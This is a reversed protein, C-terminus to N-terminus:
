YPTRGSQGGPRAADIFKGLHDSFISAVAATHADNTGTM